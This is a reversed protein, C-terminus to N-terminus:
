ARASAGPMGGAGQSCHMTPKCHMQQQGRRGADVLMRMAVACAHASVCVCLGVWVCVRWEKERERERERECVCVCVRERERKGAAAQAASAPRRARHETRCPGGAAPEQVLVVALLGALYPLIRQARVEEGAKNKGSKSGMVRCSQTGGGSAGGGDAQKPPVVISSRM